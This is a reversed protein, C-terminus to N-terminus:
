RLITSLISDMDSWIWEFTCTMNGTGSRSSGPYGWWTPTVMSICFPTLPYGTETGNFPWHASQQQQDQQFTASQVLWCKLFVAIQPIFM